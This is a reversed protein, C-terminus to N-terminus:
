CPWFKALWKKTKAPKAMAPAVNPALRALAARHALVVPELEPNLVTLGMDDALRAMRSTFAPDEGTLKLATGFKTQAHALAIRIEDDTVRDKDFTLRNGRDNFFVTGDEGVVPIPVNFMAAPWHWEFRSKVAEDSCDNERAFQLLNERDAGSSITQGTQGTVM